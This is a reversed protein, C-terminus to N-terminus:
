SSTGQEIIFLIITEKEPKKHGVLLFRIIDTFKNPRLVKFVHDHIQYRIKNMHFIMM